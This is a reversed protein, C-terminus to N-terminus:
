ELVFEPVPNIDILKNQSQGKFSDRWILDSKYALDSLEMMPMAGFQKLVLEMSMMLEDDSEIVGWDAIEESSFHILRGDFCKLAPHLSELTPGYKWLSFSETTLLPRQFRSLMVRHAMYILKILRFVTLPTATKSAVFLMTKAVLRTQLNNVPNM